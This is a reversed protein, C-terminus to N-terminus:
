GFFIPINRYVNKIKAKDMGEAYKTIDEEYDFLLQKQLAPINEYTKDMLFQKVVAPMGGIVAYELFYSCLTNMETESFPTLAKLHSYLYDSFDTAYGKTWLYEEFDLSQMFYDKKYGVSNSSIKKYNLGMMSGSCIVDFRGDQAFFKLSTSCDPFEQMEDFFILTKDAVFKFNPNHFSIRKIVSECAYGDVFIDKYEPNDVFNIEVFSQYSKGFQRVSYSKGIQRAGRIILPLHNSSSKWESLSFDIKRKIKIGYFFAIM